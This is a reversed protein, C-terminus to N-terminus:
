QPAPPCYKIADIVFAKPDSPDAAASEISAQMTFDCLTSSKIDWRKNGNEQGAM